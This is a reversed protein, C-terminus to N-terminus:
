RGAPFWRGDPTKSKERANWQARRVQEVAQGAAAIVHFPDFCAEADPLTRRVAREYGPGMDISVQRISDKHEGLPDFLEQLTHGSKGPV